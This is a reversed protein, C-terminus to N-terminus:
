IPHGLLRRAQELNGTKILERIKRSSVTEEEVTLKPLYIAEFHLQQALARINKETGLARQGLAAGEGLILYSFPLYRRIQHIFVDYPTRALEPTFPLVIALDIGLTEFLHLKQQPSYLPTIPSQPHLIESPHNSFTLVAATGKKKLEAFLFQHGLHVGDYTGITLAIPAPIPPIDELRNVIQM